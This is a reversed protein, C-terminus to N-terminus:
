APAAPDLIPKGGTDFYGGALVTGGSGDPVRDGTFFLPRYALKFTQRGGDAYGVTLASEVSTTAQAEASAPAPMGIFTVSAPAAGRRPGATPCGAAVLSLTSPLGAIPLLPAGALLRLARRRSLKMKPSLRAGPEHVQISTLRVYPALMVPVNRTATVFGDH